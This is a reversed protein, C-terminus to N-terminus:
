DERWLEQKGNNDRYHLRFSPHSLTIMIHSLTEVKKYWFNQPTLYLDRNVVRAYHWLLPGKSEDMGNLIQNLEEETFDCHHERWSEGTESRLIVLERETGRLAAFHPIEVIVPRFPTVLHYYTQPLLKSSSAENYIICDKHQNICSKIFVFLCFCLLFSCLIWFMQCLFFTVKMGLLVFMLSFFWHFFTKVYLSCWNWMLILIWSSVLRPIPAISSPFCLSLEVVFCCTLPNWLVVPVNLTGLFLALLLIFFLDCHFFIPSYTVM